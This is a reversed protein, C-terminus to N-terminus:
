SKQMQQQFTIVIFEAPHSIAVLVTIRMYGNLIDDATMTSGLGVMVQYADDPKTGALAGQKWLDNLFNGIMAKVTSWTNADNPEFVYARAALKVSQEIMIMTRRVNVYRWDQSNGDLTRAGWVLVGQGTFFRIANVSKGTSADVNLGAQQADNLNVTPSTVGILSVNAPAKWVGRTSDVYAYVGAMASAVPLTNIALVVANTLNTYNPSATLLAQQAQKVTALNADTPASAYAAQAPQVQNTVIGSAVTNNPELYKALDKVIADSLNLFTVESGSVTTTNAWPFYSMGYNLANAGVGNRFATIAADVKLPDTVNGGYVDLVAVRSQMNQCHTLVTQMYTNYDDQNLLLADPAIVMTPDPANELVTLATVFMDKTLQTSYDGLSYIYCPGGNNAFYMRMTNYMYRMSNNAIDVSYATGNLNVTTIPSATPPTTLAFQINAAGGFFTEYDMMSSIKVPQNFLSNGQYSARQTLGIFVPIATAVQVVSNPFANKEVIYVGPTQYTSM